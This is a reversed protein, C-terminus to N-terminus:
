DLNVMAKVVGSNPDLWSSFVSVMEQPQSVHTIWPRSDISGDEMYSMVRQLDQMRANRTSLITLERRHFEPGRFSIEGQTIGVLILRGGNSVYEFSRNMSQQSGTADFVATPLDGSTLEQLRDLANDPTELVGLLEFRSACFERRLPSLELLIIRAGALVAFQIVSLGIPGAGVVLVTEGPQIQAREVAHAGISLTEVLALQEYTLARSPLLKDAPVLIEERMGGDIHVGLVELRSCCNTKGMRCAVCAGCHLYPLVCCKDGSNIGTIDSGVALVEVGLEHGLIRPYSFFPQKGQFAHLDTGCVGVRHIRVKAQQPAPAGPRATDSLRFRGPEELYITQM